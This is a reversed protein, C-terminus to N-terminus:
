QRITIFSSKGQPLAGLFAIFDRGPLPWPVRDSLSHGHWGKKEVPSRCDTHIQEDRGCCRQDSDADGELVGLGILAPVKDAGLWPSPTWRGKLYIFVNKFATNSCCIHFTDTVWCSNRCISGHLSSGGPAGPVFSRHIQPPAKNGM